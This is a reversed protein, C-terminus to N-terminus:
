SRPKAAPTQTLVFPTRQSKLDALLLQHLAAYSKQGYVIKNLKLTYDTVISNNSTAVHYSFSGAPNSVTVDHPLYSPTYGAPFDLTTKWDVQGLYTVVPHARQSAGAASALANIPNPTGSLSPVLYPGPPMPFSINKGPATFHPNSWHAGVVFPKDLMTPVGPTFSGSGGGSPTLLLNMVHGYASPPVSAFIERYMWAWWGHTTMQATGTIGGDATLHLTANYVLRNHAPEAGPTYLLRPHPGAIVTPKGREGIALQGPTEYEGTSDLFVHYKPLYDIAHNFWFPTPLPPKSFTNSWNIIVPYATIGKAALLAELLTSHAKCDGYGTELTKTASIPVFGGVGLELGVYRVQASDWAYLAKVAAWGKLNGAVRDAVARVVPTVAAQQQARSWYAAGVSAWTPFSTVEFLPSYDRASVTSPGAYYAHHTTFHASLVVMNGSKKQSVTWGGTQADHLHMSAPATVSISEDRASQSQPIMWYNSYENKFYPAFQHKETILHLEDGVAFNPIVISLVKSRSYMPAGHAAPVPRVYIDSKPIDTVTGAPTTVWAKVVKLTSLSSSFTEQFPNSEKLGSRSLVKIVQSVKSTYEGNPQVVVSQHFSIQRTRAGSVSADVGASVRTPADSPAPATAAYALPISLCTTVAFSSLLRATTMRPM